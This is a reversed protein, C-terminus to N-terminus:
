AILAVGCLRRATSTPAQTLQAAASVPQLVYSAFLPPNVGCCGVALLAALLAAPLVAPLVAAEEV